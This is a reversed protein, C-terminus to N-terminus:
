ASVPALALLTELNATGAFLDLPVARTLRFGAASWAALERPIEDTGCCLHVVREPRRRALVVAVRPATGQRPPDLVVLEREAPAGLRRELWAADISGAIFRARHGFGLHRANGQAAEIAPGAYDVGVVRAAQAGVTLAFLGYGCYLDLLARGSVPGLLEAVARILAPLMASNVQSFATVPFRLRRGDAEVSLWDAGFLRKFSIGGAPRRAELYYDSGRPDLYVFAAQVGNGAARVAEGLLKAGRVVAADFVRVNLILALMEGQGRVIVHNLAAALAQFSPRTFFRLVTRYVVEHSPDDLISPALSGPSGHLGPFDLSIKGKHFIVRRKSTTRYGRPRPAAVLPQPLGPLGHEAWFAELAEQKLELEREYEMRALPEPHGGTEAVGRHAALAGLIGAFSM